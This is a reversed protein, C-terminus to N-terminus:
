YPHVYLVFYFRSVYKVPKHNESRLMKLVSPVAANLFSVRSSRSMQTDFNLWDDQIVPFLKYECNKIESPKCGNCLTESIEALLDSNCRAVMKCSQSVM